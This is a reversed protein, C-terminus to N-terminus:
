RRYSKLYGGVIVGGACLAEGHTDVVWESLTLRTVIAV